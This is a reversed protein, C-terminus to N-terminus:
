VASFRLWQKWEKSLQHVDNCRQIWHGKPSFTPNRMKWRKLANKLVQHPFEKALRNEKPKPSPKEQPPEAFHELSIVSILSPM